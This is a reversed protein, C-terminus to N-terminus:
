QVDFTNNLNFVIYQKLLNEQINDFNELFESFREM